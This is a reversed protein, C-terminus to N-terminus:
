GGYLNKQKSYLINEWEPGLHNFIIKTAKCTSPLGNERHIHCGGNCFSKYECTDCEVAIEKDKILGYRIDLISNFSKNTWKTVPNRKDFLKECLLMDGDYLDFLMKNCNNGARYCYSLSVLKSANFIADNDILFKTFWNVFKDNSIGQKGGLFSYQPEIGINRLNKLWVSMEAIYPEHQPGTTVVPMVTFKGLNHISLMHKMAVDYTNARYKDHMEKCGDISFGITINGISDLNNVLLDMYKATALTGNTQIKVKIHPNYKKLINICEAIIDAPVVMPEAGYFGATSFVYGDAIAKECLLTTNNIIIKKLNAHDQNFESHQNKSEEPLACYLCRINCLSKLNLQISIYRM